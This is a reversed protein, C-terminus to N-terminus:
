AYFRAHGTVPGYSAGRLSNTGVGLRRPFWVCPGLLGSSRGSPHFSSCRFWTVLRIVESEGLSPIM